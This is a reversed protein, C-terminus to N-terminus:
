AGVHTRSRIDGIRRLEAETDAIFQGKGADSEIPSIHEGSKEPFAGSGYYYSSCVYGYKFLLEVVQLMRLFM